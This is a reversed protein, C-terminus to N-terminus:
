AGGGKARPREGDIGNWWRFDPALVEHGDATVVVTDELKVFGRKPHVIASEISVVMGPELPVPTAGRGVYPVEHSVLGIGHAEFIFYEAHASAAIAPDVAAWIEPGVGGPRIAHRAREQVDDVEHLLDDLEGDPDGILGMRAVDALYERYTAGSDLSVIDGEGVKDDTYPFRHHSPGTAVLAYQFDLGREIEERQLARAIERKTVGVDLKEFVAVMAALVHDAAERMMAIEHPTKRARLREMVATADVFSAAPLENRLTDWADAPMFSPELGIAEHGLDLASMERVAHQIADATGTSIDRVTPVWLPDPRFSDEGMFGVYRTDEPRGRVYVVVPLYQSRGIAPAITFFCFAPEGLLYRVNHPATILLVGIEAEELLSDLQAADFPYQTGAGPATTDRGGSTM